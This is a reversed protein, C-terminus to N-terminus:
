PAIFDSIFFDYQDSKGLDDDPKDESIVGGADVPQNCGAGKLPAARDYGHYKGPYGGSQVFPQTQSRHADRAGADAKGSRSRKGEPRHHM